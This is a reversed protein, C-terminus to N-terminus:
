PRAENANPGRADRFSELAMIRGSSFARLLEPDISLEERARTIAVYFLRLEAEPISSGDSQCAAFDDAIRVSPWERGKGKHATSIVVDAEDEEATVNLVAAWLRGTGNSQVLTVFSRLPEGEDTAAFDIVQHWNTFGFFEPRQGPTERMLSDVDRLLQKLDTTGGVIHPKRDRELAKLCEAIVTANTRALIARANDNNTITSDIGDFGRLSKHEGLLKLIRNAAVAIEVGFRFSQTLSTSLETPIESMANVAMRWEYIQQHRDGVYIMQTTKQNRFVNLVAPNTDQAEDVFVYHYDFVPESLSWLKLYGDHGMPIPDEADIMRKWVAASQSAVWSATAARVPEIAARLRGQLDVHGSNIERDASNCFRRITQLILYAQQVPTLITHSDVHHDSLSLIHALERAHIADFLKSRSYSRLGRVYRVAISHTTRCDVHSPFRARAEAAISKNFALYVGRKLNENSLFQLTSTKGSGAFASIKLTAGGRFKDIADMQEDTPRYTPRSGLRPRPIQSTAQGERTGSIRRPTPASPVSPEDFLEEALRRAARGKRHSLEYRIEDLITPSASSALDALQQTSLQFYPRPRPPM